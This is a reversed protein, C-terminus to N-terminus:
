KKINIKTHDLKTTRSIKRKPISLHTMTLIFYDIHLQEVFYVM